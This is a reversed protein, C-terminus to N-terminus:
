SVARSYPREAAHHTHLCEAAARLPPVGYPKFLAFFVCDCLLLLRSRAFLSMASVWLVRRLHDAVPVLSLFYAAASSFSATAAARLCPLGCPLISCCQPAFTGACRRPARHIRRPISISPTRHASRPQKRALTYNTAGNSKFATTQIKHNQLSSATNKPTKKKRLGPRLSTFHKRHTNHENDWIGRVPLISCCLRLRELM